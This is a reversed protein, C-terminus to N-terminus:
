MYYEKITYVKKGFCITKIGKSLILGMNNEISQKFCMEIFNLQFADLNDFFEMNLQNLRLLERMGKAYYM